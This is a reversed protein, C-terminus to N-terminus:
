LAIEGSAGAASEPAAPATTAAANVTSGPAPAEQVLAAAISVRAGNADRATVTAVLAANPAPRAILATLHVRRVGGDAAAEDADFSVSRGDLADLAVPDYATAARLDTLVNQASLTLAPAALARASAHTVAAAAALAAGACVAILAVAIVAEVLLFGADDPGRSAASDM